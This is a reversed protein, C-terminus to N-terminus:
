KISLVTRHLSSILQNLLRWQDAKITRFSLFANSQSFEIYKQSLSTYRIKPSWIELLAIDIIIKWCIEDKDRDFITVWLSVKVVFLYFLTGQWAFRHTTSPKSLLSCSIFSLILLPRCLLNFNCCKMINEM